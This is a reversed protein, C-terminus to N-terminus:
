RFHEQRTNPEECRSTLRHSLLLREQEELLAALTTKGATQAAAIRHSLLQPTM